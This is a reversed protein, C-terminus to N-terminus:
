SWFLKAVLARMESEQSKRARDLKLSVQQIASTSYSAGNRRRGGADSLECPRMVDHVGVRSCGEEQRGSESFASLSVGDFTHM